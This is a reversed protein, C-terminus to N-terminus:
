QEHFKNIKITDNEKFTQENFDNDIVELSYPPDITMKYKNMVYMAFHSTYINYKHFSHCVRNFVHILSVDNLCFSLVDDKQGKIGLVIEKFQVSSLSLVDKAPLITTIISKENNHVVELLVNDEYIIDNCKFTRIPYLLSFFLHYLVYTREESFAKVSVVSNKFVRFYISMMAEQIDVCKYLVGCTVKSFMSSLSAYGM